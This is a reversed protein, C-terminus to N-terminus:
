LNELQLFQYMGPKSVRIALSETVQFGLYDTISGLTPYILVSLMRCEQLSKRLKRRKTKWKRTSTTHGIAM